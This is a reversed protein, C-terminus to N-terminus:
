VKVQETDFKRSCHAIYHLRIITLFSLLLQMTVKSRKDIHMEFNNHPFIIVKKDLM